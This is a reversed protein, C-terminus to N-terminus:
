MRTQLERPEIRMRQPLKEALNSRPQDLHLPTPKSVLDRPLALRPQQGGSLQPAPRSELGDLGVLALAESVAREKETRSPKADAVDLPFAFNQFVSMHPWIAYSLLVM